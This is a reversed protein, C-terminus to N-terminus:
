TGPTWGWAETVASVPNSQIAESLIIVQKGELGIPASLLNKTTGDPAVPSTYYYYGGNGATWGEGCFFGSVDFTGTVNGSVDVTNGVAYARIYAETNGTNTIVASTKSNNSFEETISCSVKAPTFTNKVDGTSDSLWAATAGVTLCLIVAIAAILLFPKKRRAPAAKKVVHKGNSM